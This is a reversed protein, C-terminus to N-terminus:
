RERPHTHDADDQHPGVDQTEGPTHPLEVGRLAGPESQQTRQDLGIVTVELSPGRGGYVPPEKM